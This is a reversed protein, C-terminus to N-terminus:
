RSWLLCDTERLGSGRTGDRDTIDIAMQDPRRSDIKRTSGFEIQGCEAGCRLRHGGYRQVTSIERFEAMRMLASMAKEDLQGTAKDTSQAAIPGAALCLALGVVGVQWYKRLNM